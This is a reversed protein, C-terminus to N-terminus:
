VEFRLFVSSLQVKACCCLLRRYADSATFILLDYKACRSPNEKGTSCAVKKRHSLLKSSFPGDASFKLAKFRVLPLPIALAISRFESLLIIRYLFRVLIKQQKESFMELCGSFMSEKSYALPLLNASAISNFESLLSFRYLFCVLIKGKKLAFKLCLGEVRSHALLLLIASAVSNFEFCYSLVNDFAFLSKNKLHFKYM